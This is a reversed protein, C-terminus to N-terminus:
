ELFINTTTEKVGEIGRIKEIVAGTIDALEKAEIMAMVDYPGTMMKATQVEDLRKIKMYVDTMSGAETSIM